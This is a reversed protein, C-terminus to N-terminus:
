TTRSKGVMIESKKNVIFIHDAPVGAETYAWEDQQPTLNDVLVRTAHCHVIYSM